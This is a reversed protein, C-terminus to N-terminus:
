LIDAYISGTLNEIGEFTDGEADGGAGFLSGLVVFVGEPSEYYSVTDIGQNGLPRRCRRRRQAHRQGSGGNMHDDGGGGDLFDDGDLDTSRTAATTASSRTRTISQRRPERHQHLHRRGRRRWGGSGRDPECHHWRHLQHLEATDSGPGGHLADAGTGGVIYDDGSLGFISDDGGYGFIFDDGTTVGDFLNITESNNPEKWSLGHSTGKRTLALNWLRDIVPADTQGIPPAADTPM